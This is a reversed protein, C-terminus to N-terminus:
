GNVRVKCTLNKVLRGSEHVKATVTLSGYANGINDLVTVYGNQDVILKGQALSSISWQVTFDSRESSTVYLQYGEGSSLSIQSDSIGYEIETEYYPVSKPNSAFLQVGSLYGEDDQYVGVGIITYKENLINARHGSSAMWEYVAWDPHGPGINEGYGYESIRKGNPRVHSFNFDIENARIQAFEMADENIELPPLGAKEREANTKRIIEQRAEEIDIRNNSFNTTDEWGSKDVPGGNKSSNTNDSSSNAAGRQSAAQSEVAAERSEANLGRYKNFEDAFWQEWSRGDVPPIGYTAGGPLLVVRRNKQVIANYDNYSVSGVEKDAASVFCMVTPDGMRGQTRVAPTTKDLITVSYGTFVERNAVGSIDQSPVASAWVTFNSFLVALIGMMSIIINKTKM